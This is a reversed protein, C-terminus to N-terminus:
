TADGAMSSRQCSHSAVSRPCIAIGLGHQEMLLRLVDVGGLKAVRANFEAFEESEDEWIEISHALIEILPGNAEYDEILEDMLAFAQAYEVDNEIHAIYGAEEFLAHAKHKIAEFGMEIVKNRPRPVTAVLTALPLAKRVDDIASQVAADANEADRCFEIALRGRRGTGVLGDECGAEALRQVLASLDGEDGCLQYRLTFVYEM